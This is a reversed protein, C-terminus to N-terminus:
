GCHVEGQQVQRTHLAEQIVRLLSLALLSDLDSPIGTCECEVKIKFKESFERCHSEVAVALGLYELESSHLQHSLQSVKQAIDKM